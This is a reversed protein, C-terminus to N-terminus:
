LDDKSDLGGFSRIRAIHGEQLVMISGLRDL